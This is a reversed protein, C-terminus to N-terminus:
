NLGQVVLQLLTIGNSASSNSCTSDFFVLNDITVDVTAVTGPQAANGWVEYVGPAALGGPCTLLGASRVTSNNGAAAMTVMQTDWEMEWLKNSQSAITTLAATGAIIVGSTSSVFRTTWTFSPPGTTSSVIGRATWRLTFTRQTGDYWFSGPVTAQTGMAATDNIQAEATFTNKATGASKNSYYCESQTGSRFSAGGIQPVRYVIGKDQAYRYRVARWAEYDPDVPNAILRELERLRSLTPPTRSNVIKKLERDTAIM